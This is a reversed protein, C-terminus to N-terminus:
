PPTEAILEGFGAIEERLAREVGLRLTVTASPCGICHGKLRVYVNQGEIRALEIAGNHAALAPRIKDLAAEVQETTIEQNESCFM